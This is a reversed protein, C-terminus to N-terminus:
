LDISMLGNELHATDNTNLVYFRAQDPDYELTTLSCNDVRIHYRKEMPIEMYGCVVSSIWGGHTVVLMDNRFCQVLRRLFRDARYFVQAGSEGNPYPLDSQHSHWQQYYDSNEEKIEDWSKGTWDGMHVERLEKHIDLPLDLHANIKEATQLTRTLDSSYLYRIPKDRLREGLKDAQQFGLETLDPDYYGDMFRKQNHLKQGHRTLYIKM